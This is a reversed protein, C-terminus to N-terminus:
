STTNQTILTACLKAHKTALICSHTSVQPVFASIRPGSSLVVQWHQEQCGSQRSQPVHCTVPIQKGAASNCGHTHTGSEDVVKCDTAPRQLCMTM